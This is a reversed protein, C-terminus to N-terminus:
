SDTLGWVSTKLVLYLKSKSNATQLANPYSRDTRVRIFKWQNREFDWCCEIIKGDHDLM